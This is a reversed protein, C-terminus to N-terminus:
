RLTTSGYSMMKECEPSNYWCNEPRSFFTVPIMEVGALKPAEVDGFCFFTSGSGTMVVSDFGLSLLDRKVQGLECRLAFAPAELDNVFVQDHLLKEPDESSCANPKCHRYVLPTSMGGEPKALWLKRKPLPALAAIKEGRGTCYASGPSFFFPADSSFTGAWKRLDAETAVSGSLENLAWLTTALNSSGGGLGAEVPIRKEVHIQIPFSLGTKERFLERARWILNTEDCPLSSDSATLTDFDGREFHLIDGLSIAQMLSAIEHYGDERKALVRFFLNLKAPSFLTLKNKAERKLNM